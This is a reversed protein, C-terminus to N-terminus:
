QKVEEDLRALVLRAIRFPCYTDHANPDVQYNVPGAGTSFQWRGCRCYLGDLAAVAADHFEVMARLVPFCRRDETLRRLGDVEDKLKM